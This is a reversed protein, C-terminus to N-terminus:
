PKLSSQPLIAVARKLDEIELNLYIETAHLNSHGLLQQIYRIGAGNRLLHTACCHRFTHVNVKLRAEIAYGKIRQEMTGYGLRQGTRALWLAPSPARVAQGQKRPGAALEARGRSLYERIWHAANQTLPMIRDRQGKGLRVVLRRSRTDVDYLDLRHAEGHRIGTAYLVEMIARDRLGIATTLDPMEILRSIEEESLVHPLPYESRPLIVREAPNYLLSGRKHQWEFFGRVVAMVRHLTGAKLREGRRTRHDRELHVVFAWLHAETVARWDEIGYQERLYIMLWQLGYLSSKRLSLSLGCAELEELYERVARTM